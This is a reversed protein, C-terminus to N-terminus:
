SADARLHSSSDKHVSFDDESQAAAEPANECAERLVRRVTTLINQRQQVIVPMSFTKPPASNELIALVPAMIKSAYNAEERNDPVFPTLSLQGLLAWLDDENVDFDQEFLLEVLPIVWKWSVAKHEIAYVFWEHLTTLTRRTALQQSKSTHGVSGVSRILQTTAPLVLHIMEEIFLPDNYTQRKEPQAYKSTDSAAKAASLKLRELVHAAVSVALNPNTSSHNLLSKLLTPTSKKTRFDETLPLQEVMDMFLRSLCIYALNKAEMKRRSEDNDHLVTIKLGDQPSLSSLLECLLTVMRTLLRGTSLIIQRHTRYLLDIRECVQLPDEKDGEIYSMVLLAYSIVYGRMGQSTSLFFRRDESGVLLQNIKNGLSLNFESNAIRMAIPFFASDDMARLEDRSPPQIHRFRYDLENLFSDVLDSACYGYFDTSEGARIHSFSPHAFHIIKLMNAMVGLSPEFGLQRLEELLGLGVAVYQKMIDLTPAVSPPIKNLKLTSEALANLTSSFLEVTPTQASSVFRDLISRALPWINPEDLHSLSRVLSSYTTADLCADGEDMAWAEDALQLARSPSKFRSAGRIMSCYAASTRLKERQKQFLQEAPGHVSWLGIVSAEVSEGPIEFTEPDLETEEVKSSSDLTESVSLQTTSQTGAATTFSSFEDMFYLEEPDPLASMDSNPPFLPSESLGGNTACLLDLLRHLMDVSWDEEPAIESYLKWAHQPALLLILRDMAEVASLKGESHRKLVDNPTTIPLLREIRPVEKAIGVIDNPFYDRIALRAALRGRARAMLHMKLRRTHGLWPDGGVRFDPADESPQVCSSLARLVSTHDRHKRLPPEIDPNVEACSSNTTCQHSFRTKPIFRGLLFGNYRPRLLPLQFVIKLWCLSTLCPPM